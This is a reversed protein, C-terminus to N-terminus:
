AAVPVRRGVAAATPRFRAKALDVHDAKVNAKRLIGSLTFEEFCLGEIGVVEGNRDLDVTIVPGEACRELTRAVSKDSFRVYVAGFHADVEVVPAKSSNVLLVHKVSNM